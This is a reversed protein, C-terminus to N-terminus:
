NACKGCPTYEYAIADYYTTQMAYDGACNASLHYKKGNPTVYVIKGEKYNLKNIDIFIGKANEGLNILDNATLIIVESNGEVKGTVYFKIIASNGKKIPDYRKIDIMKEDYLIIIDDMVIDKNNVVVDITAGENEGLSIMDTEIHYYDRQCSIDLDDISIDTYEAEYSDTVITEVDPSSIIENTSNLESNKNEPLSNYIIEVSSDKEISNDTMTESSSVNENVLSVVKSNDKVSVKNNNSALENVFLGIILILLISIMIYMSKKSKKRNEYSEIDAKLSKMEKKMKMNHIPHPMHIGKKNNENEFQNELDTLKEIKRCYEIKRQREKEEKEEKWHQLMNKM